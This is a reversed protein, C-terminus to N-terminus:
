AAAAAPGTFLIEGFGSEACTAAWVAVDLKGEVLARGLAHPELRAGGRVVFAPEGLGTELAWGHRTLTHGLLTALMWAGAAAQEDGPIQPNVKRAHEALLPVQAAFEAIRLPPLKGAHERALQAWSAALTPVCVQNWDGGPLRAVDDKGTLFQLLKTETADVQRLLTIALPGAARMAGAGEVEAAAALRQPLPPHSDYRNGKAQMAQEGAEISLKQMAPSGLFQQFGAAMPPRVKNNLVPLFESQLYHDFLAGVENVRRLATQVPELGCLRVSLADAAYEQARSIAFTVRLFLKGYWEFPKQLLSEAEALSTVTRGIAERTRYLFPGLRTDGGHFHGFEHAIVSRLQPVTLVQLLPLGLGMLRSGGFGMRSGREAVFANVEGVLFLEKPPAQGAAQAVERVLQWLQPQEAERLPIGPDPFQLARPWISWLVIGCTALALLWLKPHINRNQLDLWVLGGLAACIGLALLYFGVMLCLALISRGLLSPTKRM